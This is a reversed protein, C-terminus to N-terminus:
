AEQSEGSSHIRRYLPGLTSSSLIESEAQVWDDLAYGDAQGREEYLQRARARIKREVLQLMLKQQLKVRTERDVVLGRKRM